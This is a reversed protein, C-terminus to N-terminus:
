VQQAMGTTLSDLIRFTTLSSNILEDYSIPPQGENTIAEVFATIEEKHGKGSCKSKTKKGDVYYEVTNFNDIVASKKDGFVEIREKPLTTDGNAAYIINAVSGRKLTCTIAVNDKNQMDTGESPLSQAYVQKILDNTFFQILDVFHCVEGIIRGGGVADLQTWHEQPLFGANVRISILIPSNLSNFLQHVASAAKSFRRNYGVMLMGSTSQLVNITKTLDEESIALPKEVFVHKGAILCANSFESHTDHRSAIIVAQTQKDETIDKLESVAQQFGFKRTVHESNIGSKTLVKELGVTEPIHPILYSQAFSGAGIFSISTRQGANGPIFRPVSLERKHDREPYTLVIGLTHEDGAVVEYADGAQNISFTHTILPKLTLQSKSAINLFAAMNRQETWRVYPFPYDIGLQEYEPDYRGPGYSCSMKLELEKKYFHPERSLHMGVAGVVVIVGKKRALESALNVPDDSTTSATIIVKDFGLSSSFTMGKTVLSTDNRLIAEDIGLQFAKEVNRHDLDVGFVNAGSAKALQGTLQGLLGLGLVCINEGLKVDAQRIGQLAIAGLTTFAGEEFSLIEPIHAVLNQPVAVIEAHSALDQGACAVRDGPKFSNRDDMSALVVGSCSYGLAKPTDLKTRVKDFTAKIGEKKANQLVQAVLDPRQKAKQLLNSKAVNVTSKETGPSILSARTEVLVIGKNLQPAPVEKVELKGTKFSQVVQKM